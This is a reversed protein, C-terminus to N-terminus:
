THECVDRVRERLYTMGEHTLSRITGTMKVEPPIVNYAEGAHITTVSVVASDLPDTERSVVTQLECVIKAATAVPDVCLHPFAAHGGTGKVTIALSGACA